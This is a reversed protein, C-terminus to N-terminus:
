LIRNISTIAERMDFFILGLKANENALVLLLVGGFGGIWHLLSRWLLIANPAGSAQQYQSAGTTTLASVAEFYAQMLTGPWGSAYAPLMAFAPLVAWALILLMVAERVGSRRRPGSLALVLGGGAFSASLATGLFNVALAREGEAFAALAPIVMAGALILLFLGLTFFVASLRM